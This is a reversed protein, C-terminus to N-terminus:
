IQILEEVKVKNVKNIGAEFDAIKKKMNKDEELDAVLGRIVESKQGRGCAMICFGKYLKSPYCYVRYAKYGNGFWGGFKYAKKKSELENYLKQNEALYEKEVLLDEVEDISIEIPNEVDKIRGVFGASAKGNILKFAKDVKDGKENIYYGKEFKGSVKKLTNGSEDCYPYEKEPVDLATYKVKYKGIQINNWVM